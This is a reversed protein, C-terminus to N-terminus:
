GRIRYWSFFREFICGFSTQFGEETRKLEERTREQGERNRVIQMHIYSGPHTVKEM